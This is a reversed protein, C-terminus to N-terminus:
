FSHKKHNSCCCKQERLKLLKYSSHLCVSNYTNHKDDVGIIKDAGGLPATVQCSSYTFKVVGRNCFKEFYIKQVAAYRDIM